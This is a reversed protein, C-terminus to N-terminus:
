NRLELWVGLTILYLLLGLLVLTNRLATQRHRVVVFLLGSPVGYTVVGIVAISVWGAFESFAPPRKGVSMLLFSSHLRMWLYGGLPLLISPVILSAVFLRKPRITEIV